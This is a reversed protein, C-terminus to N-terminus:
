VIQRQKVGEEYHCKKKAIGAHAVSPCLRLVLGDADFRGFCPFSFDWDLLYVSNALLPRFINKVVTGAVSSFPNTIYSISLTVLHPGVFRGVRPLPDVVFSPALAFQHVGIATSIFTFPQIVFSMTTTGEVMNTARLIFTLPLIILLMANAGLLPRIFCPKLALVYSTLLVPFPFETPGVALFIFALKLVIVYMSNTNVLPGFFDLILALPLSILHM